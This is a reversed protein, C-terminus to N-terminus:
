LNVKYNLVTLEYVLRGMTADVITKKLKVEFQPKKFSKYRM